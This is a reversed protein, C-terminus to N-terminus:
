GGRAAPPRLVASDIGARDLVDRLRTLTRLDAEALVAFGADTM